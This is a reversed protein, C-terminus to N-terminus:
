RDRALRSTPTPEPLWKAAAATLAKHATPWSVGFEREVDCVARNSSAIVTAV